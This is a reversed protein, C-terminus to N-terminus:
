AGEPAIWLSGVRRSFRWGENTLILEDRFTGVLPPKLAALEPNSGDAGRPGSFLLMRSRARARTASDVDVIVDSCVHFTATGPPRTKFADLIAERGVIQDTPASPRCYVGDETFLAVLKQFHREDNLYAYRFILERCTDAIVLRELDNMVKSSPTIGPLKTQPLTIILHRSMELPGWTSPPRM